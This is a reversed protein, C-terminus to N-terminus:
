RGGVSALEDMNESEEGRWLFKWVSGIGRRPLVNIHVSRAVDMLEVTDLTTVLLKKGVDTAELNFDVEEEDGPNLDRVNIAQLKTLGEGEVRLVVGTLKMHTPNSVLASVLGIRGLDISELTNLYLMMDPNLRVLREESWVQGSEKVRASCNFHVTQMGDRLKPEYLEPPVTVVIDRESSGGVVVDETYKGLKELAYGTYDTANYACNVHVTVDGSTDNKIKLLFVVPSGVKVEAQWGTRFQVDWVQVVVPEVAGTPRKHFSAREEASGEKFKYLLTIDQRTDRGVDKMSIAKGIHREYKNRPVYKGSDKEEWYYILDANVEAIVFDTDFDVEYGHKIANLPGPGLRFLGVSEEQPTGDLVQWGDYDLAHVRAMNSLDPRRMWAMNWVHFNWISDTNKEDQIEGTSGYYREIVRRYPKAAEHASDFNTVSTAPIGLARLISTFVGSYVWCQGYKVPRRQEWYQKLIAHSGTWATPAVGDKYDDHWRGVIVGNDDDSSNMMASLHRTVYVPDHRRDVNLSDILDIAAMLVVPRFQSYNWPMGSLSPHSGRWIRGAENLVYEDRDRPSPMYVTDEKSFPNFLVAM